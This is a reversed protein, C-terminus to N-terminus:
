TYKINTKDDIDSVHKIAMKLNRAELDKTQNGVQYVQRKTRFKLIKKCIKWKKWDFTNIKFVITGSVNKIAM